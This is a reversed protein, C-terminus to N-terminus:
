LAAITTKSSTNINTSVDKGKIKKIITVIVVKNEVVNDKIKNNIMAVDVMKYTVVKCEVVNDKVKNIIM